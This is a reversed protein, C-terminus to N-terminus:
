KYAIFSNNVSEISEFQMLYKKFDTKTFLRSRLINIRSSFIASFMHCKNEKYKMKIEIINRLM